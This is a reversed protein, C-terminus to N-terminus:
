GHGSMAKNGENKADGRRRHRLREGKDRRTGDQNATGDNHVSCAAGTSDRVDSDGSAPDLLNPLERRAGAIGDHFRAAEHESRPEDVRVAMMVPSQASLAGCEGGHALADRGDDDALVSPRVEWEGVPEGLHLLSRRRHVYRGVHTVAPQAGRNKSVVELPLRCASLHPV